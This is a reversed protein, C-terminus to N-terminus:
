FLPWFCIKVSYYIRTKRTSKSLKENIKNGIQTDHFNKHNLSKMRMLYPYFSSIILQIFIFLLVCFLLLKNKMLIKKLNITM